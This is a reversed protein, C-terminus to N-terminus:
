KTKSWTAPMALIILPFIELRGLLMSITLVIKSFVSYGAYNAVPGVANFGPGINNFCAAVASFNTEFDFADLSVALFLVVFCIIYIALYVMVGTITHDELRKGEFTVAKVSRPHLLRKLESNIKKFLIIVRSVKFGGGTSGACAGIFMLAFLIAKSFSPWLDFDTTAYGTTTIISAVQFASDRVTDSFDSYIPYVNYTILGISVLVIGVYVWLEASRVVSKFRRILMLYYLNFNVGFLLMFITIVWQLYSSYSAISDSKIGFGGTGATGFAHVLSDYLPMGGIKLLVIEVATMVIYILYLIKATDRMRPVLKGKVPGPVEARMIHISRKSVNPLIAMVFVLVGMGGIWHTLSRWFLLGRSMSEIDNLISAGTTTFGSVTEFVADIYNPIEGSITFPLAGILSLIIWSLSVTLFGEKAYIVDNKTRCFVVLATGIVAAILITILFPVTSKDEYIMSVICPLILMIAEVWVIKGVTSFVMRHNM